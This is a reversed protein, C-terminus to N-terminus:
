AAALRQVPMQTQVEGASRLDVRLFVFDLPDTAIKLTPSHVSPHLYVPEHCGPILRAHAAVRIPAGAKSDDVELMVDAGRHLSLAVQSHRPAMFWLSPTDSLSWGFLRLTRAHCDGARTRTLLRFSTSKSVGRQLMSRVASPPDAVTRTRLLLPIHM